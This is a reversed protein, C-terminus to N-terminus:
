PLLNVTVAIFNRHTYNFLNQGHDQHKKQQSTGCSESVSPSSTATPMLNCEGGGVTFIKGYDNCTNNSKISGINRESSEFAAAINSMDVM